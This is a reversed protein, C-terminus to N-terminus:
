LGTRALEAALEAAGARLELAGFTAAHRDVVRLGAHCAALVGRRNGDLAALRARGLWGMARLRAPGGNRLATVQELLARNPSTVALRLEAAEVRLGHRACQEATAVLEAASGGSLRLVLGDAAARWGERGHARFLTRARRASALA